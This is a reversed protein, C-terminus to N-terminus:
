QTNSGIICDRRINEMIYIYIYVYWLRHILKPVALVRVSISLHSYVFFLIYYVFYMFLLRFTSIILIIINALLTNIDLLKTNAQM